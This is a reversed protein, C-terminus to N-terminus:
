RIYCKIFVKTDNVKEVSKLNGSDFESNFTVIRKKFKKGELIFLQTIKGPNMFPEESKEEKNEKKGDM